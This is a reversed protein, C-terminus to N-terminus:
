TSRRRSMEAAGRAGAWEGLDPFAHVARRATRKPGRFEPRQGRAEIRGEPCASRRSPEKSRWCWALVCSLAILVPFEPKEELKGSNETNERGFETKLGEARAVLGIEPNKRGYDARKQSFGCLKAGNVAALGSGVTTVVIPPAIRIFLGCSMRLFLGTTKM